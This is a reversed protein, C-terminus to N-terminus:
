DEAIDSTHLHKRIRKKLRHLKSLITGRPQQFIAAIESHTYEEVAWLYLLENEETSLIQTLQQVQQQNFLLDDLTSDDVAEPLSIEDSDISIMPVAKNHRHLDYFLNRIITKVYAQPNCISPPAKSLYRELASQLLDYAADEQASLSLAYHYLKNLADKNFM